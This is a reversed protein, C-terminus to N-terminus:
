LMNMVRSARTLLTTRPAVARQPPIYRLRRLALVASCTGPASQLLGGGRDLLETGDDHHQEACLHLRPRWQANSLTLEVDGVFRGRMSQRCDPDAARLCMEGGEFLVGVVENADCLRVRLPHPLRMRYLGPRVTPTLRAWLAHVSVPHELAGALGEVCARLGEESAYVEFHESWTLMM